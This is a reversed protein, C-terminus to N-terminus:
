TTTRQDSQPPVYRFVHGGIRIEPVVGIYGGGFAAIRRDLDDIEVTPPVQCLDLCDRRTSKKPGWTLPLVPLPEISTALAPALDWFLRALEGFAEQELAMLDGPPTAFRRVAVIPGADVKPTMVHATVGFRTARDYRAFHGPLWGPYEPPGPHFNYAGYGLADLIGRPVIVATAFAILRARALQERGIAALEDFTAAGTMALGPKHRRLAASLATQETAGTLLIITDFM